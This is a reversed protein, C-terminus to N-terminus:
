QGQEANLRNEMVLKKAIDFAAKNVKDSKLQGFIQNKLLDFFEDENWLQDMFAQKSDETAYAFYDIAVETADEDTWDTVFEDGHLENTLAKPRFPIVNSM